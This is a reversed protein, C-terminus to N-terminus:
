ATGSVIGRIAAAIDSTAKLGDDFLGAFHIFGHLHGAYLQYTVAVGSERLRGALAAGEDILVDYEAAFLHVPPLGSLDASLLDAEGVEDAGRDPLYQTWFWQMAGRTLGHGEAYRQYSDTETAPSVVPYILVQHMIEPGRNLKARLAVAAALNGGASDGAVILRSADLGLEDASEAVASTVDYCDSLPIPFPAEPPRRYDVSLVACGSEKALRRCLPDHTELDGLVWGGGHFYVVVPLDQSESPRYLRTPVHDALVHDSVQVDEPGEGFIPAFSTFAERAAEVGMEEWSPPNDQALQDVFAQAQPHLTM